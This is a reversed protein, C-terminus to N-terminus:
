ALSVRTNYDQIERLADQVAQKVRQALDPEGGYITINVNPAGTTINNQTTTSGFKVGMSEGAAMWLPMGRSRNELPIIAEAGSEAVLGLHPTSFIGGAAHAYFPDYQGVSSGFPNAAVSPAASRFLM